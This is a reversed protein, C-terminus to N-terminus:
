HPSKWLLPEALDFADDIIRKAVEPTLTVRSKRFDLELYSAFDHADNYSFGNVVMLSTEVLEHLLTASRDYGTYSKEVWLENVPVYAYRAPNGGAAFDIDINTRIWNGDVSKLHWDLFKGLHQGPPHIPGIREPTYYDRRLVSADERKKDLWPIGTAKSAIRLLM